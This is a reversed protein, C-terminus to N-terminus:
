GNVILTLSPVNVSSSVIVTVTLSAFVAGTNAAIPLLVTFSPIKNVKVAVAVSESEALKVYLKTFAGVPALM